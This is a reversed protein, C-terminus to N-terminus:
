CHERNGQRASSNSYMSMSSTNGPRIESSGGAVSDKLPIRCDRVPRKKGRLDLMNHFGELASALDGAVKTSWISPLERVEELHGSAKQLTLQSEISAEGPASALSCSTDPRPSAMRSTSTQHALSKTVDQHAEDIELVLVVEDNSSDVCQDLRCFNTRGFFGSSVFGM